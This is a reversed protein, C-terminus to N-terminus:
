LQWRSPRTRRLAVATSSPRIRFADKGLVPLCAHHAIVDVNVDGVAVVEFMGMWIHAGTSITCSGAGVLRPTPRQEVALETQSARLQGDFLASGSRGAVLPDPSWAAAM